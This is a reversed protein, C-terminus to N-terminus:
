LRCGGFVCASAPLRPASAAPQIDGSLLIVTAVGVVLPLQGLAPLAAPSCGKARMAGTRRECIRDVVSIARVASAAAACACRIAPRRPPLPERQIWSRLSVCMCPWVRLPAPPVFCGSRSGGPLPRSLAAQICSTSPQRLARSSVCRLQAPYGSRATSLQRTGCCPQAPYSDTCRRRTGCCGECSFRSPDGRCLRHGAASTATCRSRRISRRHHLTCVTACGQLTSREAPAACGQLMSHEAPAPVRRCRHSAASAATCRSAAHSLLFLVRLVRGSRRFCHLTSNGVSATASLACRPATPAHFARSACACPSVHRLCPHSPQRLCSCTRRCASLYRSLQVSYGPVSL